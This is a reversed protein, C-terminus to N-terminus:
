LFKFVLQTISLLCTVLLYFHLLANYSQVKIVNTVTSDEDCLKIIAIRFCYNVKETGMNKEQLADSLTRRRPLSYNANPYLFFPVFFEYSRM